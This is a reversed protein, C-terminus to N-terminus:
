FIKCDELSAWDADDEAWGDEDDNGGAEDLSILDGGRNPPRYAAQTPKLPKNDNPFSPTAERSSPTATTSNESSTAAAPPKIASKYFKAGIAGVAWSAWGAAQTL